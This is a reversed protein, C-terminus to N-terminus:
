RHHDKQTREILVLDRHVRAEFGKPGLLQRIADLLEDKSPFGPEVGFSRFDDIAIARIKDSHRAVSKLEEIAPEPIEGKATPGGSYHADLFLLADSMQPASLLGELERVADGEIVEINRRRSLRQKASRALQPDLEITYVKKFCRSARSAMVGRYTGTEIFNKAGSDRGLRAVIFFKMLSRPNKFRGSALACIDLAYGAWGKLWQLM